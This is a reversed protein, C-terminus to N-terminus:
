LKLIWRRRRCYVLIGFLLLIGCLAFLLSAARPEAFQEFFAQGAARLSRPAAMTGLWNADILPAILFCLIYALLPNGGFIRAPQILPRILPLQSVPMLVALWFMSFGTGFLAFTSSWLNKIIPCFPGPQLALFMLAFAGLALPYRYAPRDQAHRSGVLVGMLVNFCAPWTSLIGEPDFVVQGDVPWYPFFHRTGIVARDIVSPWSGLPDFRPAGYGPVPVFYLLAWYSVVVFAATWAIPQTPFTLGGADDRRAVALIFLGSLGYCLGIRQLVGPIRVHAFDFGPYLNLFFGIAVLALGRAVVHRMLQARTEGRTWRRAFSLPMAAGICFLFAPAVMDILHWGEWKVHELWAYNHEWSGPSLNMLMLIITLGRLVDLADWRSTATSTLIQDRSKLAAASVSVTALISV